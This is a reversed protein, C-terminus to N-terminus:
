NELLIQRISAIQNPTVGASLLLNEVKQQTSNGPLTDVHAILGSFDKVDVYDNVFGSLEYEKYLDSDSVGLLAELLYCITGTRDRGYTCHMYMPYNSPNALDSFIAKLVGYNEEKIANRYMATGYYKHGVADGLANVPNAIESESRLDMDYRIGLRHVMQSLGNETLRYDTEVAGDLESGRYLMGRRIKQGGVVQWGGIDRVNVIGDIQMMRVTDKTVFNGSTGVVNGGTLTIDLRYFYKTAPKLNYVDINDMGTKMEYVWANEFTEKESLYLQVKEAKTDSPMGSLHYSFHWPLGVDLRTKDGGYAKFLKSLSDKNQEDMYSLVAENVLQVEGSYVSTEIQVSDQTLATYKTDTPRGTVGDFKVALLILLVVSVSCSVVNVITSRNKKFFRAWRRNKKSSRKKHHHHHHHHHHEKLELRNEYEPNEQIEIENIRIDEEM